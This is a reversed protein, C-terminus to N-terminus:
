RSTEQDSLPQRVVDQGEGLAALAETQRRTRQRVPRDGLQRAPGGRLARSGQPEAEVDGTKSGVV